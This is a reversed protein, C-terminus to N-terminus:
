IVILANLALVGDPYVRVPNLDLRRIKRHRAM